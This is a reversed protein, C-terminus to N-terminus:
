QWPVALCIVLWIILFLAVSAAIAWRHETAGIMPRGRPTPGRRAESRRRM